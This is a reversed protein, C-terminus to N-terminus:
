IINRKAFVSRNLGFKEFMEWLRRRLQNVRKMLVPVIARKGSEVYRIKQTLNM